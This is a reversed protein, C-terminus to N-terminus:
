KITVITRKIKPKIRTRKSAIPLGLETVLNFIEM